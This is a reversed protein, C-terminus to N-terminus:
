SSQSKFYLYFMQIKVEAMNYMATNITTM